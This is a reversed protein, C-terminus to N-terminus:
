PSIHYHPADNPAWPSPFPLIGSAHMSGKIFNHICYLLLYIDWLHSDLEVTGRDEKNGFGCNIVVEEWTRRKGDKHLTGSLTEQSRSIRTTQLIVNANSPM